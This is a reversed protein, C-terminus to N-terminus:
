KIEVLEGDVVQRVILSINEVDGNEDFGHSGIVGTYSDLEYLYDRVASTDLGVESVAQALLNMADYSSGAFFPFNPAKGYESLYQNTFKKSERSDSLVPLDVLTMGNISEVAVTEPGTLYAGYFPQELGLERSQNALQVIKSETQPNLFIADPQTASLKTLISRFDANETGFAEDFVVEGGLKEFEDLFVARIGQAYDTQETVVAVTSHDQAILEALKAGAENDSPHNRFIFDGANSIDPNSAVSSFAIVEAAEAIPAVALMEGSCSGGIILKVKDVNILKQAASAADVGTCMGDEYIAEVMMGNVGGNDNIESVAIAVGNQVMEGYSAADGSLPAIVGVKMVEGDSERNTDSVKENGGLVAILVVVIVIVAVGIITKFGKM